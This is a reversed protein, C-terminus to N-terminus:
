LDELPQRNGFHLPNLPNRGALMDIMEQGRPLPKAEDEDQKGLWYEVMAKVGDYIKTVTMVGNVVTAAFTGFKIAGTSVLNVINTLAENMPAMAERFEMNSNVLGATSTSTERGMQMDLQIKQLDSAAFAAASDGAFMATNRRSEVLMDAFKALAPLSLVLGAAFKALGTVGGTLAEAFDGLIGKGEEMAEANAEELSKKQEQFEEHQQQEQPSLKDPDVDGMLFKQHLDERREREAQREQMEPTAIGKELFPKDLHEDQDYFPTFPDLRQQRRYEKDGSFYAQERELQEPTMGHDADDEPQKEPSLSEALHHGWRHFTPFTEQLSKDPGTLGLEEAYRSTRGLKAVDGFPVASVARLGADVMHRSREEGPESLTARGASLGANALDVMGTPDFLGAVDGLMQLKDLWNGKQPSGTTETPSSEATDPKQLDIKAAAAAGSLDVQSKQLNDAVGPLEGGLLASLLNNLEDSM